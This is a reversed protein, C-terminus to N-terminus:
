GFRDLRAGCSQGSRGPNWNHTALATAAERRGDQDDILLLDAKLEEAIAIAEWEGKGLRRPPPGPDAAVHRVEFWSPASRIWAKVAEPTRDRRLEDFVARPVVVRDFLAPLLKDQGILILYHLPTADSVVIM